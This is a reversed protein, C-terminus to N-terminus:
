KYVAICCKLVIYVYIAICSIQENCHCHVAPLCAQTLAIMLSPTMWIEVGCIRSLIHANWMCSLTNSWHHNLNSCMNYSIDVGMLQTLSRNLKWSKM